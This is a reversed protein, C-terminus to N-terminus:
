CMKSLRKEFWEEKGPKATSLIEIAIKLIRVENDYDNTKRYLMALRKYPADKESKEKVHVEYAKIAAELDGTKEIEKIQSMPMAKSAPTLKGGAKIIKEAKKIAKNCYKKFDKDKENRRAKKILAVSEPTALDGLAFITATRVGADVDDLGKAIVDLKDAAQLEGLGRIAVKRVGFDEDDVVSAFCDIAKKSGTKQLAVALFRKNVGTEKNFEDILKDVAVDGFNGLIEAAGLRIVPKEDKTAEILPEIIAEDEVRELSKIAEKRVSVDEDKLMSIAEDIGVM